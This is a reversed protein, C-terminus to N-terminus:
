RVGLVGVGAFAGWGSLLPWGAAERGLTLPLLADTACPFAYLSYRPSQGTVRAAAHLTILNM